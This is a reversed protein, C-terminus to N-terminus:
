RRERKKKQVHVVRKTVYDAQRGGNRFCESCMWKVKGKGIPICEMWYRNMVAGCVCCIEDNENRKM